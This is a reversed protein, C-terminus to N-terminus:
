NLISSYFELLGPMQLEWNYKRRFAAGGRQGLMEAQEINNLLFVISESFEHIDNPAVLIGCESTKVVDRIHLYDFSVIPIGAAMYEFVKNPMARLIKAVPLSPVLGVRAQNLEKMIENAPVNPVLVVVGELGLASRRVLFEERFSKTGHFRDTVRFTVDPIQRRVQTAIDLLALSGNELYQSGPFTVVNGRAAYDDSREEALKASAYNWVYSLRLRRGWFDAAQSPVVLVVNKLINALAWQFLRVLHYLTPRLARPIGIYPRVLVEEPYNEHVDYVVPKIFSLFAMYPLLDFDHFHVLQVKRLLRFVQPLVRLPILLPRKARRNVRTFPHFQVGERVQGEALDWPCVLHM